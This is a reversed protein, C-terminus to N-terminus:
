VSQSFLHISHIFATAQGLVWQQHLRLYSGPKLKLEKRQEVGGLLLFLLPMLM